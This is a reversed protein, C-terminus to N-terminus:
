SRRTLDAADSLALARGAVVLYADDARACWASNVVGLLDRYRRALPNIPVIGSGVENTIAVVRGDHTGAVDAVDAATAAIEDDSIRREILNSVWLTLCDIIVTSGEPARGLAGVLDMPEEITTWAAPRALRHAEIRAAMEEDRPEATAVFVVDSGDSEAIAAALTSKGSRAGGVLVTLSM